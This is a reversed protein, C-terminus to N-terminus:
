LRYVRVANDHLLLRQEAEPRDAIARLFGDVIADYSGILSDVPFNSAFLCREPGFIAIADRIVPGNADYRWDQGPLGLGSIKLAVNPARAATALGARWAALGEASRDSPLAAHNIIIPTDPFDIALAAAADMHWWPTQLDFSLGHRALLAYGGRWVPCDMSGPAGRRAADPTAASRPKHRIGRVLPRAAQAALVDAVDDRDLWAQAVCASPLGEAAALATLWDTEAVPRAPEFEAEVHVTAAIRHRATDRRYDAPLYNRRLAAYSGYRFPIPEPDSLWPHRNRDLNWFHQHADVIPLPTTQM